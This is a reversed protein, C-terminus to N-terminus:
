VFFFSFKIWMMWMMWWQLFHNGDWFDDSELSWGRRAPQTLHTLHAIGATAQTLRLQSVGGPQVYVTLVIYTMLISSIFEWSTDYEFFTCLIKLISTYVSRIQPNGCIMVYKPCIQVYKESWSQSPETFRGKLKNLDTRLLPWAIAKQAVMDHQWILIDTM